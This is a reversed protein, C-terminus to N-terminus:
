VVNTVEVIMRASNNAEKEFQPQSVMQITTDVVATSTSVEQVHVQDELVSKTRSKRTTSTTSTNQHDNVKFSAIADPLFPNSVVGEEENYLLSTTQKEDLEGSNDLFAQLVLCSKDTYSALKTANPRHTFELLLCSFAIMELVSFSYMDQINDITSESDKMTASDTIPFPLLVNTSSAKSQIMDQLQKLDFQSKPPPPKQNSTVEWITVGLSYIDSKRSSKYLCSCIKEPSMYAPTGAQAVRTENMQLKTTYKKTTCYHGVTTGFEKAEAVGFDTLKAVMTDVNVLINSPKIDQHVIGQLHLFEVASIIGQLLQLRKTYPLWTDKMYNSHLIQDLATDLLEM